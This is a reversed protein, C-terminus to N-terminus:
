LIDNSLFLRTSKVYYHNQNVIILAGETSNSVIDWRPARGPLNLFRIRITALNKFASHSYRKSCHFLIEYCAIKLLNM